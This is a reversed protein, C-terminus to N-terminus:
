FRVDTQLVLELPVPAVDGQAIWDRAAELTSFTRTIYPSQAAFQRALRYLQPSRLVVAIRIYPNSLAAGIASAILMDLSAEDLAVTGAESFDEVVYRLADFRPDNQLDAVSNFLEDAAIDGVATRVVGRQEWHLSIPM